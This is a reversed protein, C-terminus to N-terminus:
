TDSSILEWYPKFNKKVRLVKEHELDFINDDLEEFVEPTFNEESIQYLRSVYFHNYAHVKVNTGRFITDILRYTSRWLIGDLGPDIVPLAIDTLKLEKCILMAEYLCMAWALM